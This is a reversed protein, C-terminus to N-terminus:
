KRWPKTSKGTLAELRIMEDEYISILRERATKSIGEEYEVRNSLLKGLSRYLSDVKLSRKLGKRLPALWEVGRLQGIARLGTNQLAGGPNVRKRLVSPEFDLALSMGTLVEELFKRPDDLLEDYLVIRVRDDPFERLLGELHTAYFGHEVIWPFLLPHDIAQDFSYDFRGQKKEHWFQSFAREIPNRLSLVFRANPYHCAIRKAAVPSRFYTPSPDVKLQGPKASAFMAEYGELGEHYRMDFFRLSDSEPVFVDPHEQLCRYIWTSAAKSVGMLFVDPGGRGSMPPSRFPTSQTSM